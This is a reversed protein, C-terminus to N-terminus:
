LVGKTSAVHIQRQDLTVAQRLARALSKFCTEAIHHNNRGYLTTIHLNVQANFCLSKFFEEVLEVDFDGIKAATFNVQWVFYPRGSLDIVSRTLTEDLPVYATGMRMIGKREGWAQRLAQGLVIGVDEVTHHADIHLDGDAIVSLDILGHCAIQALMHDLFGIGTRVDCQGTGDLNITAKITTEKTKREITASRM